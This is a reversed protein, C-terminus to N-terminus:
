RSSASDSKVELNRLLRHLYKPNIALASAAESVRGGANELAGRVIRKKALRVLAHYGEPILDETAQVLLEDPLDEMGIEEETGLIVAREIVNQLERVNGPWNWSLLIRQVAPSISTVRRRARVAVCNLFYAALLAVDHGRERLAPMRVSVVNLRYFLDARFRGEAIRHSLDQNTAAILRIDTRRSKTSGLREFEREQLVRLLKAQVALPLEGVEDLFLTGGAAAELKGTKTAVAGTFAGREHGFLESELLNEGLCACNIAVWPGQHRASGTHIARAVM